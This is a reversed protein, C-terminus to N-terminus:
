NTGLDADFRYSNASGAFRQVARETGADAVMVYEPSFNLNAISQSSGNGTYTGVKLADGGARLATWYYTTGNQNVRNNSGLTFGDADLTQINNTDFGVAGAMRKSQDAGMTKTKISAESALDGKVI